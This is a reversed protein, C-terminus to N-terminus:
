VVHGDVVLALSGPSDGLLVLGHSQSAHLVLGGVGLSGWNVYAPLISLDPITLAGSCLLVRGIVPQGVIIVNSDPDTQLLNSVLHQLLVAVACVLPGALRQDPQYVHNDLALMETHELREMEAEVLDHRMIGGSTKNVLCTCSAKVLSGILGSIKATVVATANPVLRAVTIETALDGTLALALGTVLEHAVPHRVLASYFADLLEESLLLLRAQTDLM